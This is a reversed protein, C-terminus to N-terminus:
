PAPLVAGTAAELGSGCFALIESNQDQLKEAISERVRIHAMRLTNAMDATTKHKHMIATVLPHEDSEDEEEEKM